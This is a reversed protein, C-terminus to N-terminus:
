LSYLIRVCDRIRYCRDKHCYISKEHAFLTDTSSIIAVVYYTSSIVAVLVPISDDDLQLIGHYMTYTSSSLPFLIMITILFLIM